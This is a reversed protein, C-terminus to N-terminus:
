KQKNYKNTLKDSKQRKIDQTKLASRIHNRETM